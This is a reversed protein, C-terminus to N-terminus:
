KGGADDEDDDDEEEAEDDDDDGGKEIELVEGEKSIEIEYHIGDVSSVGKLEYIRRGWEREVEAASAEFGPVAKTAAEVVVAPVESLAIEKSHGNTALLSLGM